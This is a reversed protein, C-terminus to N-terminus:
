PPLQLQYWGAGSVSPALNLTEQPGDHKFKWSMRKNPYCNLGTSDIERASKMGLM